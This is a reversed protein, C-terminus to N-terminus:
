KKTKFQNGYHNVQKQEGLVLYVTSSNRGMEILLLGYGVTTKKQGIYTHLEDLEVVKINNESKLGILKEGFHRIWQYASVHSIKLVRGISRFGLGELYLELAFKKIISTKSTSKTEVTYHYGCSNCRYRQKNKVIGSKVYNQSKCKPCDM